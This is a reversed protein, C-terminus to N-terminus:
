SPSQLKYFGRRIRRFRRDGGIAYASLIGRVSSWRLSEGLLEEAAAHTERARMPRDALELVRTITALM